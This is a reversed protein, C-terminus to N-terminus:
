ELFLSVSVTGILELSSSANFLSSASLSLSYANVLFFPLGQRETQLAKSDAHRRALIFPTVSWV